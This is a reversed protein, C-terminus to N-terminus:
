TTSCWLSTYGQVKVDQLTLIFFISSCITGTTGKVVLEHEVTSYNHWNLVSVMFRHQLHVPTSSPQFPPQIDCAPIAAVASMKSAADDDDDDADTLDFFCSIFARKASFKHHTWEGKM